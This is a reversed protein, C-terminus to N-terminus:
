ASSPMRSLPIHSSNLRTSKRDIKSNVNIMALVTSFNESVDKVIGVAGDNTFVAMDKIVGHLSGRNLTLFNNRKNVTKNVVKAARYTYQQRYVTDKLYFVKVDYKLFTSNTQKRLEANEAALKENNKKLSFYQVVNNYVSLISGTFNNASNIFGSRQYNNNQVLMWFSLLQLVLYLFVFNNRWIFAFINKM